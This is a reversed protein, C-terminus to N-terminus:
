ATIALKAKVADEMAKKSLTSDLMILKRVIESKENLKYLKARGIKRTVKVIGFRELEAWHKFFTVRGMSLNEIIENKTYDFLRNDLFFDIIRLTPSDGLCRILLTKEM